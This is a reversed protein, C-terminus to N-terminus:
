IDNKASGYRWFKTLLKMYLVGFSGGFVIGALVDLPYHQGVVIRSYGIGGVMLIAAIYFLKDSHRFRSKFYPSLCLFVSLITAIFTTNFAHNSPFSLAPTVNPNYFTVHPKLRGTILKLLSSVSNSFLIGISFILGWTMKTRFNPIFPTNDARRWCLFILGILVVSLLALGVPSETLFVINNKEILNDEGFEIEAGLNEDYTKLSKPAHLCLSNPLCRTLLPDQAATNVNQAALDFSFILLFLLLGAQVFYLYNRAISSLYTLIRLRCPM